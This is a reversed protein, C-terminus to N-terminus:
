YQCPYRCIMSHGEATGHIELQRLEKRAQSPTAGSLKRWFITLEQNTPNGSLQKQVFGCRRYRRKGLVQPGTARSSFDNVVTPILVADQLIQGGAVTAEPM